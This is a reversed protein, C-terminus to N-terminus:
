KVSVNAKSYVKGNERLVVWGSVDSVEVGRDRSNHRQMDYRDGKQVIEVRNGIGAESLLLHIWAILADRLPADGLPKWAYFAEGLDKLLKPKREATAARFSLLQGLIGIADNDGDYVDGLLSGSLGSVGPIASLDDGFIIQSWNGGGGGSVPISGTAPQPTGRAPEVAPPLEAVPPEV